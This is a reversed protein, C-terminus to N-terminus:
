EQSTFDLVINGDANKSSTFGYQKELMQLKKLLMDPSIYMEAEMELSKEAFGKVAYNTVFTRKKMDEMINKPAAFNSYNSAIITIKNLEKTKEPLPIYNERVFVLLKTMAVGAALAQCEVENGSTSDGNIKIPSYDKTKGYVKANLGVTCSSGNSVYDATLEFFYQANSNTFADTLEQQTPNVSVAGRFDSQYKTSFQNKKLAEAIKDDMVSNDANKVFFVATSTVNKIMYSVDTLSIKDIDAIVSYHVAGKNYHREIIKYSKIFKFYESTIEPIEADPTMEQQKSFYNYLANILAGTKASSDAQKINDGRVTATSSGSVVTANASFCFSLSIIFILLKNM